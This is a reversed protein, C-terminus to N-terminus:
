QTGLFIPYPDIPTGRSWHKVNRARLIAFHLHPVDPPANGTTGVFGITDGRALAMGEYLGTQYSDLHAYYYIFRERPDTTYIMLGGDHSTHLKIIRGSDTALVPTGRPAPIDLAHHLRKDPRTENFTDHLHCICIGPVPFLLQSPTKPTQSQVAIPWFVAAGLLCRRVLKLM